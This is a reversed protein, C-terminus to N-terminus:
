LKEEKLVRVTEFWLFATLVVTIILGYSFILLIISSVASSYNLATRFNPTLYVLIWGLLFFTALSAQFVFRPVILRRVQIFHKLYVRNISYIGEGTRAVLGVGCLKELHFLVLSPTSLELLKQLERPGIPRGFRIMAKYVKLTTGTLVSDLDDSKSSGAM